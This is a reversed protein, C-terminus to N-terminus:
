IRCTVACQLLAVTSVSLRSAGLANGQGGGNGNHIPLYHFLCDGVPQPARFNAPM